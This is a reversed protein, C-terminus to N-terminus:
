QSIEIMRDIFLEVFDRARVDLAVYGNETKQEYNYFDAFTKGMSVGQNTDVDLVLHSIDLLHSQFLAALALPDNLACGKVAQSESLFEMVYRSSKVIFESVPSHVQNIRELDEETMLTQYTVDLPVLTFPIGSHFVIHTAHPDCYINFEAQPTMNGCHNIAGGMIYLHKVKGVVQPYLRVLMAINTLPGIAVISIEGPNELVYDKILEVAHNQHPKTHPTPLEAYGLGNKGHTVEANVVPLVLPRDMGAAVPISSANLLELVSLANIVGQKMPCNGNVVTIAEMKVEPSALAYLITLADDIGPDTDLIFREQKM